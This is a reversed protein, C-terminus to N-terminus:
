VARILVDDNLDDDGLWGPPTFEPWRRGIRSYFTAELWYDDVTRVDMHRLVVDAVLDVLRGITASDIVATRGPDFRIKARYQYAKAM